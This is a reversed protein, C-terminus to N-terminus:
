SFLYQKAVIIISAALTSEGKGYSWNYFQTGQKFSASCERFFETESIGIKKLTSRM